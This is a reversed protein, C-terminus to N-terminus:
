PSYGAWDGSFAQQDGPPFWPQAELDSRPGQVQLATAGRGTKRRRGRRSATQEGLQHHGVSHRRSDVYVLRREGGVGGSRQPASTWWSPM